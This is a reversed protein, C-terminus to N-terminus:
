FGGRTKWELESWKGNLKRKRQRESERREERDWASSRRRSCSQRRAELNILRKKKKLVERVSKAWLYLFCLCAELRKLATLQSLRLPFSPASLWNLIELWTSKGDMLPSFAERPGCFSIHGKSFAMHRSKWESPKEGRRQAEKFVFHVCTAIACYFFFFGCVHGCTIPVVTLLTHQCSRTHTNM